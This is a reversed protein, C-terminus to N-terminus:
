AGDGTDPVFVAAATLDDPLSFAMLPAAVRLLIAFAAATKALDDPTLPVGIVAAAQKVYEEPVM